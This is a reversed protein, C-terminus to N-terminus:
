RLSSSEIKRTNLQNVIARHESVTYIVKIDIPYMNLDQIIHSINEIVYWLGM